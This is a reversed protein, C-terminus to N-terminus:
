RIKLGGDGTVHVNAVSMGPFLVSFVGEKGWFVTPAPRGTALCSLKVEQGETVQLVPTMLMMMVRETKPSPYKASKKRSHCSHCDSLFYKTKLKFCRRVLLHMLRCGEAVKLQLMM